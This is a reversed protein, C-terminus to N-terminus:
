YFMKPLMIAMEFSLTEFHFQYREFWQEQCFYINSSLLLIKLFNHTKLGKFSIDFFRFFNIFNTLISSSFM